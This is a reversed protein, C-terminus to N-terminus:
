TQLSKSVPDFREPFAFADSGGSKAPRVNHQCSARKIDM